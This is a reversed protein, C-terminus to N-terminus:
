EGLEAPGVRFLPTFGSGSTAPSIRTIAMIAAGIARVGLTIMSIGPKM